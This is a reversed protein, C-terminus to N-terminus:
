DSDLDTADPIPANSADAADPGGEDGVTADPGADGAAMADTVDGVGDHGADHGADPGAGGGDVPAGPMAAIWALVNQTDTPDIVSSAIPPMQNDVPNDTGRNTILKALLSHGPDGALVRGRGAWTPTTPARGLDAEDPGAWDHCSARWLGGVLTRRGGRPRAATADRRRLGDLELQRQPVLRRLQHPDMRAPRRRHRHRRRRADPANSPAAADPAGRRRAHRADAWDGRRPRAVSRRLRPPSRRSGQPVTRVRRAHPHPLERRRRRPAHRRRGLDGGRDRRRELRLDEAGLLQRGDKSLPADRGPPWEPQIAELGQHRDPLDVGRSRQPRND